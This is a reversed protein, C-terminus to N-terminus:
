SHHWITTGREHKKVIAPTLYYQFKNIAAFAPDVSFEFKFLNAYPRKKVKNEQGTGDWFNRFVEFKGGQSLMSFKM